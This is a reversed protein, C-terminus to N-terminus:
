SWVFHVNFSAKIMRVERRRRPWDRTMLTSPCDDRALRAVSLDNDEYPISNSIPRGLFTFLFATISLLIRSSRSCSTRRCGWPPGYLSEVKALATAKRFLMMLCVPLDEFSSQTELSWLEPSFILRWSGDRDSLCVVKLFDWWWDEAWYEEM